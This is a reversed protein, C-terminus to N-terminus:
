ASSVPSFKMMKREDAHDAPLLNRSAVCTKWACLREDLSGAESIESIVALGDAGAALIEQTQELHIGGIAVTPVPVLKRMKTLAELGLPQYNM